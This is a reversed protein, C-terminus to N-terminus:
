DFPVQLYAGRPRGMQMSRFADRLADPIEEVYKVARTWSTLAEMLALQNKIEHLEGRGRGDSSTSSSSSIVLLPVSDAYASAVPTAVNTAGPGTITCVVGPRGQIRAYGEAMFGAGQEHRALVHRLGAEDRMADYLALTHVGPIGFITDIHFARLTKIIAQAGSLRQKM